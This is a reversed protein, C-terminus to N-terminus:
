DNMWEVKILQIKHALCELLWHPLTAFLLLVTKEKASNVIKQHLCLNFSYNCPCIPDLVTEPTSSPLSPQPILTLQTEFTLHFNPPPPPLCSHELYFSCCSCSGQSSYRFVYISLSSSITALSSSWIIWLIIPWTFTPPSWGFPLLFGQFYKLM